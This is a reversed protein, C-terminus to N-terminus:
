ASEGALEQLRQLLAAEWSARERRATNIDVGGAILARTQQALAETYDHLALRQTAASALRQAVAVGADPGPAEAAAELPLLQYNCHYEWVEDWYRGEADYGEENIDEAPPREVRDVQQASHTLEGAVVQAVTDDWGDDLYSQIVTDSYQDREAATKFYYYQAVGADYLFFRREADPSHKPIPLSM